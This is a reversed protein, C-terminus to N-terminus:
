TESKVKEQLTRRLIALVAKHKEGGTEEKTKIVAPLDLVRVVLGRSLKLQVADPLLEDYGRGAGIVGLLDLPGWRTM